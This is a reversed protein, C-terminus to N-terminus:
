YIGQSDPAEAKAQPFHEASRLAPIEGTRNRISKQVCFQRDTKRVPRAAAAQNYSYSETRAYRGGQFYSQSQSVFIEIVFAEGDSLSYLWPKGRFALLVLFAVSRSKLPLISFYFDQLNELIGVFDYQIISCIFL